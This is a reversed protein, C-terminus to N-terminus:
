GAPWLARLAGVADDAGWIEPGMALFDTCPALTAATDPDLGGEAVVPLEIMEAWWRFLGLGAIEGSGLATEGVPGFAVYDAGAEGAVLGEHRSTGCFAGISADRGLAARAARVHRPGDPLHVGDLDLEAALRFHSELLLPVDRVRCVPALVAADARIAAADPAAGLRLCAPRHADMVAAVRDAFGPGVGPPVILYLQPLAPAVM